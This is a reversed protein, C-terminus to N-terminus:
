APCNKRAAITKISWHSREVIGNGAQVHACRFKLHVSWCSTFEKIQRCTFAADNDTLIEASPGREYFFIAELQRIVSISDHLWLSRWITFRFPGCGILTLFHGGNYHTEDMALRSWNKKGSLDGKEWRLPAPDISQCAECARVVSKVLEKSATPDIIRAFYLMRKVSKQHIDAVHSQKISAVKGCQNEVKKHLDLLRQPVRTLSDVRNQCSKVLTIDMTLAYEEVLARLTGLCQRVLMEGAATTNVRAKGTLTDSVWRHVCASNTVGHLM